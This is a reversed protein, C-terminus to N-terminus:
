EGHTTEACTLFLRAKRASPSVRHSEVRALVAKVAADVEVRVRHAHADEIGGALDDELAIERRRGLCEELRDGRVALAEDDGALADKGPVPERIQARLLLNSEHEAVREVHLAMWPPFAFFSRMSAWLIATSSRPPM